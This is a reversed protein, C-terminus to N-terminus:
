QHRGGIRRPIQLHGVALQVRVVGVLGLRQEILGAPGVGVAVANAVLVARFQLKAEEIAAVTVTTCLVSKRVPQSFSTPM